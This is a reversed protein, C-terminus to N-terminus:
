AVTVRVTGDELSESAFKVPLFTEIVRMNTQSHLSPTTTRLSGGGALAMPILLQDALHEDVPVRAELLRKVEEILGEGKDSLGRRGGYTTCVIPFPTAHVEVALVLGPGLSDVEHMHLDERSLNFADKLRGVARHLSQPTTRAYTGVVAMKDVPGREEFTAPTFTAPTIKAILTGGGAPYFGHRELTILLKPGFHALAPAFTTSLFDTSPASPNHTGGSIRVESPADAKTLIPLLTQLVLNASGATGIAFAYTGGRTEGPRFTISSSRMAAGEVTGGCVEAAARVCTLHQRLLGPKGRGGRIHDLTFPTGTLASLALSTRLVQGGGEGMRGDLTIM